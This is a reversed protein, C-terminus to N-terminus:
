SKESEIEAERVDNVFKASNNSLPELITSIMGVTVQDGIGGTRATRDIRDELRFFAHSILILIVMLVIGLGLSWGILKKEIPLLPEYPMKQMEQGIKPQQEM